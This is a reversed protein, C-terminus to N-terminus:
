HLLLIHRLILQYGSAYYGPEMLRRKQKQRINSIYGTELNDNFLIIGVKSRIFRLSPDPYWLKQSSISFKSTIDLFLHLRPLM